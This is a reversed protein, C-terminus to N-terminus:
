MIRLHLFLSISLEYKKENEQCKGPLECKDGKWGKDCVCKAENCKTESCTANCTGHGSCHEKNTGTATSCECLDCEYDCDKWVLYNDCSSGGKLQHSCTM